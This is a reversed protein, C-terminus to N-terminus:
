FLSKRDSSKLRGTGTSRGVFSCSKTIINFLIADAYMIEGGAGHVSPNGTLKITDKGKIWVAREGIVSGDTHYIRVNGTAVMKSFPVNKKKKKKEKKEKKKKENNKESMFLIAKNANVKIGEFKLVVNDLLEVYGERKHIIMNDMKIDVVSNSVLAACFSTCAFFIIGLVFIIYNKM